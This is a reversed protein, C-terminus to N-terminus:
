CTCSSSPLPSRCYVSACLSGCPWVWEGLEASKSVVVGEFPAAITMDDLRKQLLEARAHIVDQQREAQRTRAEDILVASEADLLERRNAAGREFSSRLLEVDRRSRDLTATREDVLGKIAQENAQIERLRVELRRSDLRALVHGAKVRDGERVPLDIILGQEQTAVNSRRRARLEGTGRRHEQVPRLVVRGVKVVTPRPGGPQAHAGPAIPLVSALALTLGGALIHRTAM